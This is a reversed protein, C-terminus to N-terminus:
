RLGELLVAFNTTGETPCGQEHDARALGGVLPEVVASRCRQSGSAAACRHDGAATQCCEVSDGGPRFQRRPPRRRRLRPAIPLPPTPAFCPLRPPPYPRDYLAHVKVVTVLRDFAKEIALRLRPPSLYIPACKLTNDRISVHFGAAFVLVTHYRIILVRFVIVLGAACLVPPSATTTYIEGAIRPKGLRTALCGPIPNRM